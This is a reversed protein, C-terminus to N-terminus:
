VPLVFICSTQSVLCCTTDQDFALDKRTLIITYFNVKSARATCKMGTICLKQTTYWPIDWSHCTPYEM